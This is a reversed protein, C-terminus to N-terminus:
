SSPQDPERDGTHMYLIVINVRRNSGRGEHTDNSAIPRYEGYGAASLRLPSFNHQDIFYRVISAARATSLEWNSPFQPTNIPINDTHGEVRILNPVLFFSQALKDLFPFAEPRIIAQGSPFLIKNGLHIELGRTGLAIHFDKRLEKTAQAVKVIMQKLNDLREVEAQTVYPLRSPKAPNVLPLQSPNFDSIHARPRPTDTIPLINFASQLSEAAQGLKTIDVRSIGYLAVFFAFLLTVYDAYSILWRELKEEDEPRKNRKRNAVIM